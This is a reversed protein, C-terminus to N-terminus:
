GTRNFFNLKFFILSLNGFFLLVFTFLIYIGGTLQVNGDNAFTQHDNGIYNPLLNLRSIFINAIIM